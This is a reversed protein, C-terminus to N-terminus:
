CQAINTPPAGRRVDEYQEWVYRAIQVGYGGQSPARFISNAITEDPVYDSSEHLNHLALM